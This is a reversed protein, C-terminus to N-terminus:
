GVAERLPFRHALHQLLGADHGALGGDDAVVRRALDRRQQGLLGAFLEQRM